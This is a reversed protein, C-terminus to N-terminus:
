RTIMKMLRMQKTQLLAIRALRHHGTSYDLAKQKKKKNSDNGRRSRELPPPCRARLRGSGCRRPASNAFTSHPGDCRVARVRLARPPSSSRHLLPHLFRVTPFFQHKHHKHHHRRRRQTAGKQQRSARRRRLLSSPQQPPWECDMEVMSAAVQSAMRLGRCPVVTFLSPTGCLQASAFPASSPFRSWQHHLRPWRQRHHPITRPARHHPPQRRSLWRWQLGTRIPPPTPLMRRRKLHLLLSCRTARLALRPRGTPRRAKQLRARLPHFQRDNVRPGALMTIIGSSKHTTATTTLM